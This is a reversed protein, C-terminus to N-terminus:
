SGSQAVRRLFPVVQRDTVDEAVAELCDRVGGNVERQSNGTTAKASGTASAARNAEWKEGGDRGDWPAVRIAVTCAVQTQDGVRRIDLRKVTSAIIFARSRASSLEASTPLGGPWSTAYGTRAVSQQVIHALRVPADRPARRTQDVGAEVNVFVPPRPGTPHANLSAIMALSRKSSTRVARDDDHAAAHDLADVALQRADDPTHEDVSRGLALAAVRRVTANDDHELADSLAIVARPDRSKALTLAAALRIRYHSSRGLERVNTAIADAHAIQACLVLCGAILALARSM